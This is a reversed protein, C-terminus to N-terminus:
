AAAEPEATYDPRIVKLAVAVELEADWVQYVAGMGGMGLLKIIHYREGFGAGIELPAAPSAPAKRPRPTLRTEDLPLISGSLRTEDVGRSNRGPVPTAGTADPDLLWGCTRCAAAAGPARPAGCSPCQM